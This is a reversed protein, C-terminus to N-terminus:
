GRGPQNEQPPETRGGWPKAALDRRLFFFYLAVGVVSLALATLSATAPGGQLQNNERFLEILARSLGYLVLFLSFIQGRFRPRRFLRELIFFILLGALSSYLQTPHRPVMDVAPFVMAWPLSSPEGYCCGRMFCGIRAVAYGLALPPAALDLFELYPVGAKKLYLYGAVLGFVLSGYFALGGEQIMLIRLPHHWYYRPEYLLVYALRAGIIGALVLLLVLDIVLDPSRGQKEVRKVLLYTAVLVGLAVFFGYSYIHLWGYQFLVPHM